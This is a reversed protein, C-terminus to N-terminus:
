KLAVASRRRSLQHVNECYLVLDGLLNHCRKSEIQRNALLLGGLALVTGAGLSILSLQYPEHRFCWDTM